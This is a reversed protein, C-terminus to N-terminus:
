CLKKLHGLVGFLVNKRRMDTLYYERVTVIIVSQLLRQETKETLGFKVEAKALILFLAVVILMVVNLLIVCLVVIFIVYSLM